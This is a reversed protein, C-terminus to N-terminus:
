FDESERKLAAEADYFDFLAGFSDSLINGIKEAGKPTFHIYDAGALGNNHWAIMSQRGGMVSFMDWFAAGNEVAAEKLAQVTEELFPYSDMHGKVMKAMDSPGIFLIKASPCARKFYQIQSVIKEKYSDVAKQSYICPMFNGGFQLIILGVDLQQLSQRMLSDNIQTFITGSCGRLPINDVSVGAGNDAFIGYIDANGSLSISFNKVASDLHWSFTQVGKVDSQQPESYGAKRSSLTASFRGGKNVFLLTVDSFAKVGEKALPNSSATASFTNAGNMRYSKAMIGYSRDHTRAGDGYVMYATYNETSRQYVSVSPITQIAPMLGPGGGGFRGQLYERLNSSIRDMEIQSDGYHLIRVIRNQAKASSFMKYLDYFFHIDDDPFYFRGEQTSVVTEYFAVTDKLTTLLSDRERITAIEAIKLSDNDDSGGALIEEVSPFRFTVEGVKVGDKPFFVALAAFAAFLVLIFILIKYTKMM